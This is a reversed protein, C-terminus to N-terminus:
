AMIVSSPYAARGGPAYVGVRELPQILQGLAGGDRFDLWSQRRAREHFAAVQRAAVQLADRLAPPAEAVAAQIEAEDVRAAEVRVGDFAEGYRRVAADGDARVDAVVRAVVQEATLDEGFVGRIRAQVAEPLTAEGFRRSALIAARAAALGDYIPLLTM